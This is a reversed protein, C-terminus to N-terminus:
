FVKRFRLKLLLRQLFGFRPETVVGLFNSRHSPADLTVFHQLDRLPFTRFTSLNKEKLIHCIFKDKRWFLVVDWPKAEELPCIKVKIYAGTQIWPSMSDSVVRTNITKNIKSKLKLFHKYSYNM